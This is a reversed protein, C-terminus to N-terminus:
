AEWILYNTGDYISLLALPTQEVIQRLADVTAETEPAHQVDSYTAILGFNGNSFGAFSLFNATEQVNESALSFWWYVHNGEVISPRGLDM